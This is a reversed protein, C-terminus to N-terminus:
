LMKLNLYLYQELNNTSLYPCAREWELRKQRECGCLKIEQMGLVLQIISSQNSASQAFMKRDLVARKNMFIVVWAFYLVSGFMFILFVIWNYMLIVTGLVFINFISFVINLSTDTIFDKIRTHDGIRQIVDGLMKTDFFRIPLNTLKIIYDSILSINIRSGIHLLIWYHVLFYGM